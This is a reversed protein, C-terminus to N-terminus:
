RRACAADAGLARRGQRERRARDRDAHRAHRAHRVRLVRRDDRDSLRRGRRHLDVSVASDADHHRVQAGDDIVSQAGLEMGVKIAVINRSQYLGRRMPMPGEFKGDYNQPTWNGGGSQPVTSRRTTSSTPPRAATRSRTPTSSRSSRRAPSGCRRRRAISSPTTSTAAASWRACPAPARIWRSSRARCIRRTRRRRREGARESARPWTPSTRAHAHVRRVTGAEIRACSTRSRASPPPSCTSTSRPTSRSDRSTSSSGSSSSSSSASGSWSTRRSTARKRSPARAPASVGQRPERRRRQDRGARADARHGHQAAPHRARSLPASQLAGAGQAARRADGGRRPEPRSGVQRLLAAVGDRRRVRRQRARDPQPLARPDQGELVEGRHRARGESEKLKRVLSKSARSGSPSSTARSSCRSRRSARPSAAAAQHRRPDRGPHAHLDIGTHQYFRKDETMSSPTACSRRSRTSRSCRAASSGSSPSSAATPPTSSRRRARSTSTSSTSRRAPAPAASSRGARTASASSSPSSSRSPSASGALSSPIVGVSTRRSRFTWRGDIFLRTRSCVSRRVSLFTLARPSPGCRVAVCTAQCDSVGADVKTGHLRCPTSSSSRTARAPRGACRRRAAASAPPGTDAYMPKSGVALLRCTPLRTGIM